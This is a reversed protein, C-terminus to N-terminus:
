PWQTIEKLSAPTCPSRVVQHTSPSNDQVSGPQANCGVQNVKRVKSVKRVKRVRSGKSERNEQQDLSQNELHVRLDM